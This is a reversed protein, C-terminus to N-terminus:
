VIKWLYLPATLCFVLGLFLILPGTWEFQGSKRYDFYATGLKAFLLVALIIDLAPFVVNNVVAIIQSRVDQWTGEIAGAVSAYRYLLIFKM